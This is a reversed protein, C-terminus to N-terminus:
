EKRKRERDKKMMLKKEHKYYEERELIEDRYKNEVKNM